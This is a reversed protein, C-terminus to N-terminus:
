TASSKSAAQARLAAAKGSCDYLSGTSRVEDGFIGGGSELSSSGLKVQRCVKAAAAIATSAGTRTDGRLRPGGELGFGGRSGPSGSLGTGGGGGVAGAGGGAVGVGGFGQGDSLVWRIRGAQVQEALWAVSVDSERGSFGGIGAVESGKSVIAGAASSQSAVAVTGGGHSSAYAIAATLMPDSEFGGGIPRQARTSPGQSGGPAAQVAGPAAQVAGFRGPGGGPPGRFGRQFGATLATPRGGGALADAPGGSPFTGSTAHGLTDISWVAPAILLLGVAASLAFTSARQRDALVFAVAEVICGVILVPVLWGLEGEYDGLVALESALGAAIALVGLVRPAFVRRGPARDDPARHDTAGGSRLLGVGAGALAATFPALLSVYYPHFIGKAFSFVVATAAFSGGVALLWGTREDSRRLRSALLIAVGCLLAFGLLWGAQGGLASNLLRLPGPDGGFLTSGIGGPGGGGGPGGSSGGGVASAAAGASAAEGAPGGAQGDLRGFGNYELILSIVRNDSTGSVWPRSGAPTLEVLAPWAGGVLVMAAAGALLAKLASARGKPAVWLWAALIGPIVAFAIAMKTEFGLGVCVGSLALWRTRGDELGRLAFWLAAVCCLVLLADPNNHRSIAVSIPTLALVLGSVFGALRGFRRRVLDYTLAVTAIGMLAQPVLISLPTYGFIRVSLSQVWLALPPKDVSMVGGADMSAFLFNHWSSSMSRVAASYYDNAWGNRGLAWLNLVGSILVLVALEARAASLQAAWSRLSSAPAPAIAAQAAAAPAGGTLGPVARAPTAGSLAPETRRPKRPGVGIPKM